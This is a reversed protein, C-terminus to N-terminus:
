YIWENISYVKVWEKIVIATDDKIAANMATSQIEMMENKEDLEKEMDEFQIEWFELQFETYLKGPPRNPIGSSTM